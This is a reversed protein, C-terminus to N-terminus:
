KDGLLCLQGARHAALTSCGKEAAIRELGLAHYKPDIESGLFRRHLRLCALATTAVGSFPDLVMEGPNTFDALLDLMLGLPKQAPHVRDTREVGHEWLAGTGGGNWEKRGPRHMIAVGEAQQAPRDGTYQPGSWRVWVGSRIWADVAAQQYAGLQELSCFALVWGKSVRLAENVFRRLSAADLPPFDIKSATEGISRQGAHTRADYPPDTIVCDVAGDALSGLLQFADINFLDCDTM